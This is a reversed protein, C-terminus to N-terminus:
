TEKLFLIVNRPRVSSTHQRFYNSERYFYGIYSLLDTFYFQTPIHLNEATLYICTSSPPFWSYVLSCVECWHRVWSNKEPTRSIWNIVSPLYFPSRPATTGKNPTGSLKCIPSGRIRILNYRIYKGRFQSNPKAKDFSRFKPPPVGSSWVSRQEEVSINRNNVCHRWTNLANLTENHNGFWFVAHFIYLQQSYSGKRSCPQILDVDAYANLGPLMTTQSFCSRRRRLSFNVHVRTINRSWM